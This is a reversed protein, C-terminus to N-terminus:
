PTTTRACISEHASTTATANMGAPGADLHVPEREILKLAAAGEARHSVRCGVRREVTRAVILRPIDDDDCVLAHV